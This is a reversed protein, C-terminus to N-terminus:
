RGHQEDRGNWEKGDRHDRRQEHQSRAALLGPSGTRGLDVRL